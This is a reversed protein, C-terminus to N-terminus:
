LMINIVVVKIINFTIIINNPKNNNNNINNFNKYDQGYYKIKENKNHKHKNKYYM